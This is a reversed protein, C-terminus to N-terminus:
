ALFSSTRLWIDLVQAKTLTKVVHHVERKEKFPWSLSHKRGM